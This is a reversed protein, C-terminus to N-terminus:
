RRNHLPDSSNPVRRKSSYLSHDDSSSHTTDEQQCKEKWEKEKKQQKELIRSHYQVNRTNGVVTTVKDAGSVLLSFSVLIVFFLQVCRQSQNQM